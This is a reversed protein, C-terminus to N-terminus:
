KRGRFMAKLQENELRELEDYDIERQEFNIFRNKHEIAEVKVPPAAEGNRIKKVMAILWATLNNIGGQQKAIDYASQVLAADGDAAKLISLKDSITMPDTIFGLAAVDFTPTADPTPAHTELKQQISNTYNPNCSINFKLTTIKRSTKIEVFDFQIDSEENIERQATLIVRQKFLNYSEYMDKVKLIEKLEEVEFTRTGLKEYQKLLEYLRISYTSQFQKVNKLAYQTFHGKLELLFEKLEPAFRLTITGAKSDYVASSLWAAVITKGGRQILLSKTVLSTSISVFEEYINNPNIELYKCFDAVSLVYTQFDMDGKNIQAILYLVLRQQTLTLKYRAEVLDNGKVILMQKAIQKAM